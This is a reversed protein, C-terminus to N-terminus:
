LLRISFNRTNGIYTTGCKKTQSLVDVFKQLLLEGFGTAENFFPIRNLFFVQSNRKITTCPFTVHFFSASLSPNSGETVNGGCGSELRAGEVM